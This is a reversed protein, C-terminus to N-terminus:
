HCVDRFELVLSPYSMVINDKLVNMVNRTVSHLHHRQLSTGYTM